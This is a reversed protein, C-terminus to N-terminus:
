WSLFSSRQWFGAIKLDGKPTNFCDNSGCLQLCRTRQCLPPLHCLALFLYLVERHEISTRFWQHSMQRYMNGANCTQACTCLEYRHEMVLVRSHDMHPAHSHKHEMHTESTNPMDPQEIDDFFQVTWSSCCSGFGLLTHSILSLFPRSCVEMGANWFKPYQFGGEVNVHHKM